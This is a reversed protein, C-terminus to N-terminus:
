PSTPPAERATKGASPLRTQLLMCQDAAGCNRGQWLRAYAAPRGAWSHLHMRHM